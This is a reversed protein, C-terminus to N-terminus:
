PETDEPTSTAPRKRLAWWALTAGLVAPLIGILLIFPLFASSDPLGNAIDYIMEAVFLLSCGGAFIAVLLGAIGVLRRLLSM